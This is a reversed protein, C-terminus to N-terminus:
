FYWFQDNRNSNYSAQVVPSNNTTGGNLVSLVLGSNKNYFACLSLCGGTSWYQEPHSSGLCTWGVVRANQSKSAGSISLCQGDGNVLQRWGGSISSGWGWTQQKSGNCTYLATPNDNKDGTTICEFNGALSAGYNQLPFAGTVDPTVQGHRWSFESFIATGVIEGRNNIDDALSVKVNIVKGHRSFAAHQSGGAVPAASSPVVMVAGVLALGAWLVGIRFAAVHRASGPCHDSVQREDRM